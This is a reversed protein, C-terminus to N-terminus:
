MSGLLVSGSGVGEGMEEALCFPSQLSPLDQVPPQTEQADRKKPCNTM